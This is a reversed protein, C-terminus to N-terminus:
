ALGAFEQEARVKTREGLRSLAIRNDGTRTTNEISAIPPANLEPDRSMCDDRAASTM